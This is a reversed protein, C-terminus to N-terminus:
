DNQICHYRDPFYKPQVAVKCAIKTTKWGIEQPKLKNEGGGTQVDMCYKVGGGM